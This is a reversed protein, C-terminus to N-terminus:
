WLGFAKTGALLVLVVAGYAAARGDRQVAELIKSYPATGLQLLM